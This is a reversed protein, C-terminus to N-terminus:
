TPQNTCFMELYKKAGAMNVKKSQFATSDQEGQESSFVRFPLLFLQMQWIIDLLKFTVSDGNAMLYGDMPIYTVQSLNEDITEILCLPRPDLEISNIISWWMCCVAGLNIYVIWRYQWARRERITVLQTLPISGEVYNYTCFPWCNMSERQRSTNQITTTNSRFVWLFYHIIVAFLRSSYFPYRRINQLFSNNWSM